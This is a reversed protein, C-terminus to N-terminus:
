KNKCTEVVEIKVEGLKLKRIIEDVEKEKREEM